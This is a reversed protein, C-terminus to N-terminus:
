EEPEGPPVGLHPRPEMREHLVRVIEILGSRTARYYVVHVPQKLAGARRHQRVHRLHLSRVGPLLDNRDRTVPGKPDAAVQRLAAVLLAAYRRRSEDGWREGSTALIGELDAQAPRALRFRAV